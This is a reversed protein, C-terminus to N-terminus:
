QGYRINKAKYVVEDEGIKKKIYQKDRTIKYVTDIENEFDVITEIKKNVLWDVFNYWLQYSKKSPKPVDEFKKRWIVYSKDEDYRAEKTKRDGKFGVLKCLLMMKKRIRVQNIPALLQYEDREKAYEAAIEM